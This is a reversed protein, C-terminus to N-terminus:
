QASLLVFFTAGQGPESQAWISGGHNTAVKKCLALGVGTGSYEEKRHLRQFMGFIKEAKEQEFGIGNDSVSFLYYAKSADPQHNSVVAKDANEAKIYIQPHVGDKSFKLANNVLNYFLQHIQQPIAHIVPLATKHIIAGKQEIILELDNEVNHLIINLDVPEAQEEKSLSAFNLLDRLSKSMRDITEGVKEFRVQSFESLNHFDREKIMERFIKIKRIPEQLDHSSVYTFEELEKNKKELEATREAVRRQLDEESEQLRKRALVKDTVDISLNMIRSVSGDAERMPQFTFDVYIRRVVNNREQFVEFEKGYFPEGKTFVGKLLADFGHRTAEPFTEVVKKGIVEDRQKDAIDLFTDNAIEVIFDEGKLICIGVPAQMVLTRFNKESEELAKKAAVETRLDRMVAGVAIPEGTLRDHIRITNNYVPFVEGTKLHRVNM